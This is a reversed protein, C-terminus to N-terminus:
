EASTLGNRRELADVRQELLSMRVGMEEHWGRKVHQSIVADVNELKLHLSKAMDVANWVAGSWTVFGLAILGLVASLVRGQWPTLVSNPTTAMPEAEPDYHFLEWCFRNERLCYGRHSDDLPRFYIHGCCPKLSLSPKLM